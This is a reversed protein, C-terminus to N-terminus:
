RNTEFIGQIRPLGSKFLENAHLSLAVNKAQEDLKDYEQFLCSHDAVFLPRERLITEDCKLTKKAFVGYGAVKSKAVEFFDNEFKPCHSTKYVILPLCCDM